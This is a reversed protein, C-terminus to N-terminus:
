KSGQFIFVLFSSILILLTALVSFIVFPIGFRFDKSKVIKISYIIALLLYPMAFIADFIAMDGETYYIERLNFQSELLPATFTVLVSFLFLLFGVTRYSKNKLILFLGYIIAPIFSISYTFERLTFISSNSILNFMVEILAVAVPGFLIIIVINKRPDSM